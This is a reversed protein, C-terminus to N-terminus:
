HLTQNAPCRVSQHFGGIRREAFDASCLWISFRLSKLTLGAVPCILRM